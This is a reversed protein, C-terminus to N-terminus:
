TLGNRVLKRKRELAAEDPVMEPPPTQMPSEVRKRIRIKWKRKRTVILGAVFVCELAVLIIGTTVFVRRATWPSKVLGEIQQQTYTPHEIVVVDSSGVRATFLAILCAASIIFVANSLCVSACYKSCRRDQRAAYEYQDAGTNLPVSVSIPENYGPATILGANLKVDRANMIPSRRIRREEGVTM